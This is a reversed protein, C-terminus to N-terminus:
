NISKTLQVKNVHLREYFIEKFIEKSLYDRIRSIFNNRQSNQKRRLISTVLEGFLQEPENGCHKKGSSNIDTMTWVDKCEARRKASLTHAKVFHQSKRKFRDTSGANTSIVFNNSRTFDQQLYTTPYNKM